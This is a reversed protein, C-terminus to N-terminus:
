LLGPLSSLDLIHSFRLIRAHGVEPM